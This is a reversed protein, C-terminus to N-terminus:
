APAEWELVINTGKGPESDIRVTGGVSEVRRLIVFRFGLSQDPVKSPRFGLGNDSVVIKVGRSTGKLRLKRVAKLGAHQVSNNIAQVTADSLASAVEVPLFTLSSGSIAIDCSRDIRKAAEELSAFLSMASVLDSGIKRSEALNELADRSADVATQYESSNKARFAIKLAEFVNTYLASDLRSQEREATEAVVRTMQAGLADDYAQDVRQAASRLLQVLAVLSAPFLTVYIGDTIWNALPASGGLESAYLFMWSVSVFGMYALSWIKPFFMGMAVSASGTAWWLWPKHEFPLPTSAQVQLPWTLIAFLYSAGQLFYGNRSAELWWFNVLNILQAVLIFGIALGFWLMNLSDLQNLSNVVTEGTTALSAVTFVRGTLRDIQKVAFRSRSTQPM